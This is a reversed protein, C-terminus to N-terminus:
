PGRVTQWSHIQRSSHHHGWIRSPKYFDIKLTRLNKSTREFPKPDTPFSLALVSVKHEIVKSKFDTSQNNNNKPQSFMIIILLFIIFSAAPPLSKCKLMGLALKESIWLNFLATVWLYHYKGRFCPNWIQFKM